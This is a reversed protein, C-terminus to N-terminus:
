YHDIQYQNMATKKKLEANSVYLGSLYYPVEM